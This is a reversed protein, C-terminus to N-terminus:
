GGIDNNGIDLRSTEERFLSPKRRHEVYDIVSIPNLTVSFSSM